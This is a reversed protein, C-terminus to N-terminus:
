KGLYELDFDFSQGWNERSGSIAASDCQTSRYYEIVEVYTKSTLTVAQFSPARSGRSNRVEFAIEESSDFNIKKM